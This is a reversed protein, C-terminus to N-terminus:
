TKTCTCSFIQSQKVSPTSFDVSNERCWKEFLAWKSKYITRTSSRQPAAIREAVEVSFSQEQLQGSRSVLRPPEPAPPQQPVCVQPVKQTPDNVSSTTTPDRNLAASPGLVLADRALRPSNRHDPLLMAQDKPDGQSPATPPYAYATLNTWNINLADIDWARPDPIPSVYLPLKHNLHTAFLDVHPTFWKQCIQKFVQPHLSWETSQVQNSRSLLDAMVNLCGLVHRAKLTILYHHGWTTIKWLLACMEASHTGGQQQHLSGSNLQGNCSVSNSEPVPGQLRSPGPLGGEIRPCIHTAKKGSRVVSGKHFKPRLSRGLRRTLRRYLTPYQPRQSSPRCRDDRKLSKAVLRPPSCHSRDLSPPQGAVSSIELAGQSSVSLAEHSPTGGPGNEGNLSAVWNSVDFMKCDFCTKVQTKPDFGSTQAIERSLTKCPSFRPPIRLGNVFFVQTPKLESKGSTNDVGLASNPRCGGTHESPSGGSVPVQDALRGPIPSNQIRKLPGNTESGKCDNYLGPPSHSTWIPPLHIPVGTVQLLVKPIEKLKSPHPHTPLHGISRDVIGVGRSDPLDQHVRSNGNQVKRRTSFHQAQKPRHSAEM